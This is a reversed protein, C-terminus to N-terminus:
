PPIGMPLILSIKAPVAIHPAKMAVAADAIGIAGTEDFV